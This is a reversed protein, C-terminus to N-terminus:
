AVAESLSQLTEELSKMDDNMRELEERLNGTMTDMAESDLARMRVIKAPLADTSACITVLSAFIREKANSLEILTALHEERAKKASEYHTRAETDPTVAIREALERVGAEVARPDVTSLYSAIAEAREALKTARAELEEVTMLVVALNAKVDDPTKL